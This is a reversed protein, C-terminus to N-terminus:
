SIKSLQDVYQTTKHVGNSILDMELTVSAMEVQIGMVSQLSFSDPGAKILETVHELKSRFSAGLDDAKQIAIDALTNTPQSPWGVSQIESSKAPAFVTFDNGSNLIENLQAGGAEVETTIPPIKPSLKSDSVDDSLQSLQEIYDMKM